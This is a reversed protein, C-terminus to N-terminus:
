QCLHKLLRGHAHVDHAHRGVHEFYHVFGHGANQAPRHRLQATPGEEFRHGFYSRLAHGRQEVQVDADALPRGDATPTGDVVVRDLAPLAPAVVVPGVAGVTAAVPGRLLSDIKLLVQASQARDVLARVRAVVAEPAHHRAHLDVVCVRGALVPPTDGALLLAVGDADHGLLDATEAAGSLDDALALVAPGPVHTM